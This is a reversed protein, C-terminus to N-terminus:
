TVSNGRGNLPGAIEWHLVAGQPYNGGAATTGMECHDHMVYRLPFKEQSAGGSFKEWNPIDPPMEMPLLMDRIQLPWTPWVDREWVNDHLVVQGISPAPTGVPPILSDFGPVDTKLISHALEMMHNGHIHTAHHALGANLTRVLTPEGVYNKIQVDPAHMLDFGSRGNITFYRPLYSAALAAATPSAANIPASTILANLRPDIETFLWICEQTSYEQDLGCPVWKGGPFRPTNGFAEFVKSVATVGAPNSTGYRPMSYPTITSLGGGASMGSGAAPHVIFAGHLGLLRYLHTSGHSNDYYLYTGAGPAIFKVTKKDNSPIDLKSDPIGGIEFRHPEPRTNTVTVIVEDGETVRLVPGPVRTTITPSSFTLVNVYKGDILLQQSSNITLDITVPKVSGHATGSLAGTAVVGAGGLKLFERRKM